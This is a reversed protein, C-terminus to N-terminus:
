WLCFPKRREREREREKEREREREREREKKREKKRVKKSEGKGKVIKKSEWTSLHSCQSFISLASVTRIFCCFTLFLVYQNIPCWWFVFDIFTSLLFLVYKREKKQKQKNTQKNQKTKPSLTERYLGPQRQAWKTSWAPRSSLFGGAEAEQTSPNFAHAVV